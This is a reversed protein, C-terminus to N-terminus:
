SLKLVLCNKGCGDHRSRGTQIGSTETKSMRWHQYWSWTVHCSCLSDQCVSSIRYASERNETGKMGCVEVAKNTNHLKEALGRGRSGRSFFEPRHRSSAEKLLATELNLVKTRKWDKVLMQPCREKIELKEREIPAWFYKRLNPLPNTVM